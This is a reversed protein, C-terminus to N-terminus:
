IEYEPEYQGDAASGVDQASERKQDYFIRIDASSTQLLFSARLLARKTSITPNIEARFVNEQGLKEMLGSNTLVREVDPNIGSVLLFRGTKRLYELLHQLALVSTADLHRANKMRLIFVRINDDDALYRVQDQFLDAAGFFLEGEVHIISIQNNPRMKKDEIEALNGAANFSYEVLSPTSAKKLFLALSIGIGLWIAADLNLVLTSIVVTGFVIADSRTARCAVKILEPNILRSAIIILLAALTATPIFNALTATLAVIGLVAVAALMGSLQTRGGSQYNVASRVFSSSGPMAGFFVSTLNGFGLGILEQNPDVKQGSQAAVTKSVSVTELMGLISTALAASILLPVAQLADGALPFGTFQPIAGSVEGIDRILQVGMLDLELVAALAGFLILGILGDPWRPRYRRLLVFLLLSGAGILATTPNWELQYFSTVFHRLTSLLDVAPTRGMGFLTSLQGAIILIGVGTSYGIIVSRSIFHTLNGMKVVGAFVQFTGMLFGIVLTLQLPTLPAADLQHITGALIITITNTPGFILHRSSAFLAAFFGGIMATVLVAQVPLGVILAFGLAQPIAVIAVTAGAVVDAKLKGPRYNRLETLLPLNFHPRWSLLKGAGIASNSNVLHAANNGAV